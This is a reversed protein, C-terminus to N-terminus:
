HLPTIQQIYLHIVYRDNSLLSVDYAVRSFQGCFLFAGDTPQDCGHAGIIVAVVLLTQRQVSVAIHEADGKVGAAQALIKAVGYQGKVRRQLSHEVVLRDLWAFSAAFLERHIAPLCIARIDAGFGGAPFGGGCPNALVSVFLDM